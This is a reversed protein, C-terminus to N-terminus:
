RQEGNMEDEMIRCRDEFSVAKHIQHVMWIYGFPDAFMANTVGMKELHVPPQIVACGADMAKNYTEQIDPVLVNIWMTKPDGQKPAILMYQPNEDLIHFRTGYITFVAENRGRPYNTVEVREADFIREYLALAQIADTVVFDIEAGTM